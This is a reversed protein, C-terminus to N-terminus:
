EQLDGIQLSREILQYIASDIAGEVTSSIIDFGGFFGTGEVIDRIMLSYTNTSGQPKITFKVKKREENNKYITAYGLARGDQESPMATIKYNWLLLPNSSGTIEITGAAIPESEVYEVPVMYKFAAEDWYQDEPSERVFGAVAYFYLKFGKRADHFWDQLASSNSLVEQWQVGSTTWGAMEADVPFELKLLPIWDPKDNISKPWTKAVESGNEHSAFVYVRMFDSTRTRLKKANSKKVKDIYFGYTKADKLLIRFNLETNEGAVVRFVGDSYDFMTNDCKDKSPFGKTSALIIGTGYTKLYVPDLEASITESALLLTLLIGLAFKMKM